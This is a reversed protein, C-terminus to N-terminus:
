REEQQKECTATSRYLQGCRRCTADEPQSKLNPWAHAKVGCLARMAPAGDPSAPAIHTTRPVRGLGPRRTYSSIEYRNGKASGATTVVYRKATNMEM